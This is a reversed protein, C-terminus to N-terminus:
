GNHCKLCGKFYPHSTPSDVPNNEPDHCELCQEDKTVGEHFDPYQKISPGHLGLYHRYACGYLFVFSIIIVFTFLKKM